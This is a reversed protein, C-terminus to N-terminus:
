KKTIKPLYDLFGSFFESDDQDYNGKSISKLYMTMAIIKLDNKFQLCNPIVNKQRLQSFVNELCDQTFRGTLVFKFERNNILYDVLNIVLTTTIIVGRQM